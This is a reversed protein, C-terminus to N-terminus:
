LDELEDFVTENYSESVTDLTNQYERQELAEKRKREIRNQLDTKIEENEEEWEELREETIHSHDEFRLALKAIAEVFMELFDLLERPSRGLENMLRFTDDWDLYLDYANSNREEDFAVLMEDLMREIRSKQDPDLFHSLNENPESESSLQLYWRLDGLARVFENPAFNNYQYERLEEATKDGHEETITIVANFVDDKLGEPLHDFDSESVQDAPYYAEGSFYSAKGQFIISRDILAEDVTRGYMYWHKPLGVDRDYEEQLYRDVLCCLKHVRTRSTERNDKRDMEFLVRYVLYEPAGLEGGDTEGDGDSM